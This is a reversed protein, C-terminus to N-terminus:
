YTVKKGRKQLTILLPLFIERRVVEGRLPLPNPHPSINETM